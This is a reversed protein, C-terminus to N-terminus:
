YTYQESFTFVTDWVEVKMIAKGLPNMTARIELNRGAYSIGSGDAKERIFGHEAQKKEYYMQQYLGEDCKTGAKYIGVAFWNDYIDDDWPVSFMVALTEPPATANKELLEYTLVGVSGTPLTSSKSFTCVETMLPRVTPRPPNYTEGSELYVRFCSCVRATVADRPWRAGRPEDRPGM